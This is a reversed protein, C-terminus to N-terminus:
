VTGDGPGAAGTGGTGSVARRTALILSVDDDTRSRIRDSALFAELSAAVADVGGPEEAAALLPQFMGRFFPAHLSRSAYHLALRELGDTMLAVDQPAPALSAEELREALDDDTLFSTTNAYEGRHPWFVWRWGGADPDDVAILGDGVQVAAGGGEATVVALLTCAFARPEEEETTALALVADRAAIASSRLAAPFAEADRGDIWRLHDMLTAIALEAGDAGRAASGAGDAIAAVLTGGDLVECAFRDQCGTGSRLHSTGTAQAGAVRWM